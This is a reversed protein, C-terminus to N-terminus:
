ANAKITVPIDGFIRPAGCHCQVMSVRCNNCVNRMSWVKGMKDVASYHREDYLIVFEQVVKETATKVKTVVPQSASSKASEVQYGNISWGDAALSTCLAVAERSLRGRGESFAVAKTPNAANYKALAQKPTM